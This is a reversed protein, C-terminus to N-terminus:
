VVEMNLLWDYVRQIGARAKANNEESWVVADRSLGIVGPAQTILRFFGTCEYNNILPCKHCHIGEWHHDCICPKEIEYRKFDDDWMTNRLNTRNLLTQYDRNNLKIVTDGITARRM